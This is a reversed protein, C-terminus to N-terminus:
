QSRAELALNVVEYAQEITQLDKKENMFDILMERYVYDSSLPENNLFTSIIGNTGFLKVSVLEPNKGCSEWILTGEEGVIKIGRSKWRSLFDLQISININKKAKFCLSAYDEAEIKEVGLNSTLSNVKSIKGFLRCVLDIDHVNDLIVGGQDKKSAYINKVTPRMQSLKHSFHSNAYYIKKLSKLNQELLKFGPHYRMNSVSWIRNKNKKAIRLINKSDEKSAALPKELLIRADSKIAAQLCSLHSNPPTAIIIINPKSKISEEITKYSCIQGQINDYNIKKNDFYGVIFNLENLIRIYRSGISGCGIVIAKKNEKVGM